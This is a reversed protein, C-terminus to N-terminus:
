IFLIEIIDACSNSVKRNSAIANPKITIAANSKPCSIIASKCEFMQKMVVVLIVWWGVEVTIAMALGRAAVLLLLMLNLLVFELVVLAQTVTLALM